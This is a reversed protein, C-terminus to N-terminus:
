ENRVAEGFLFDKEQRFIEARAFFFAISVSPSNKAGFPPVPKGAQAPAPWVIM